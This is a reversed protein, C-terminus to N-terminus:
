KLRKRGLRVGYICAALVPFTSATVVVPIDLRIPVRASLHITVAEEYFYWLLLALPACLCLLKAAPRRTFLLLM